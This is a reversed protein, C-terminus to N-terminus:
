EQTPKTKAIRRPSVSRASSPSRNGRSTGSSAATARDACCPSRGGLPSCGCASIMWFAIPYLAGVLLARFISRDYGHELTLAVIMQVTAVLAIAVGWALAFGFVDDGESLLIGLVALM